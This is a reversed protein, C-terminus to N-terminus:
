ESIPPPTKNVGEKGVEVITGECQAHKANMVLTGGPSIQQNAATFYGEASEKGTFAITVYAHYRNEMPAMAHSGDALSLADSADESTVGTITGIYEKTTKDYVDGGKALADVTYIRVNEVKVVCEYTAGTVFEGTANGGFRWVIGLVLIVLVAVVAIDIISIKGFIKGNKSFM